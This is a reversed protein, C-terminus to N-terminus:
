VITLIIMEGKAKRFAILNNLLINVNQTMMLTLSILKKDYAGDVMGKLNGSYKNNKNSSGEGCIM